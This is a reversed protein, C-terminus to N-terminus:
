DLRCHREGFSYLPRWLLRNFLVVLASMMAIGLVIRPFDGAATMQAIYAGLGHAVLHDSGWSAVESVISANWAGGSATIAGTAYYPFIGPL